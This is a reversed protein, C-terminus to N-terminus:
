LRHPDPHRLHLRLRARRPQGPRAGEPHPGLHRLPQRPVPLVLRRVRRPQREAEAWAPRLRPPHLRRAAGAVRGEERAVPGAGPRAARVAANAPGGPGGGGHPPARLGAQRAVRDDGGVGGRHAVLGGGHEGAGARRAVPEHLRHLARRARGRRGGHLRGHDPVPLGAADRGRRGPGRRPRTWPGATGRAAGLHRG